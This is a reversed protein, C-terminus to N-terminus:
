KSKGWLQMAYEAKAYGGGEWAARTVLGGHPLASLRAGLEVGANSAYALALRLEEATTYLEAAATSLSLDADYFEFVGRFAEANAEGSMGNIMKM